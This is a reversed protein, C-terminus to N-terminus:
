KTNINKHQSVTDHAVNHAYEAIQAVNQECRAYHAINHVYTDLM